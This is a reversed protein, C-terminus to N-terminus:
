FLIAGACLLPLVLRLALGLNTFPDISMNCAIREAVLVTLKSKSWMAQQLWPYRWGYLTADCQKQKAFAVGCFHSTVISVAEM